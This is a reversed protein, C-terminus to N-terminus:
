RRRAADRGGAKAQRQENAFTVMLISNSTAVGISMICGMLRAARQHNNAHHLAGV